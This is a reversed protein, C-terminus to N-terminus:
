TCHLSCILQYERMFQMHFKWCIKWVYPQAEVLIFLFLLLNGDLLFSLFSDIGPSLGNIKSIWLTAAINMCLTSINIEEFLAMTHLEEISCKYSIIFHLFNLFQKRLESFYIQFCFSASLNICSMLSLDIEHSTM